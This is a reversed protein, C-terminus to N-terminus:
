RHTVWTNGMYQTKLCYMPLVNAIRPCYKVPSIFVLFRTVLPIVLNNFITIIAIKLANKVPSFSCFIM